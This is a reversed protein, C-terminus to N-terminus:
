FKLRYVSWATKLGEAQLLPVGAQLGGLVVETWGQDLSSVLRQPLRGPQTSRM